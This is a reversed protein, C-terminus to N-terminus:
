VIRPVPNHLHGLLMGLRRIAPRDRLAGDESTSAVRIEERAEQVLPLMDGWVEDHYRSLIDVWPWIDQSQLAAEEDSSRLVNGDFSRNFDPILDLPNSAAEAPAAKCDHLPHDKNNFANNTSDDEHPLCHWSDAPDDDISFTPDSLLAVVEAGDRNHDEYAQSLPSKVEAAQNMRALAQYINGGTRSSARKRSSGKIGQNGQVLLYIPEEDTREPVTYQKENLCTVDERTAQTNHLQRPKTTFDDFAAQALIAEDACHAQGSRFSESSKGVTDPDGQLRSAQMPASAEGHNEFSSSSPDKSAESSLSTLSSSADSASSSGFACQVLGSASTGIRQTLSPISETGKSAPQDRSPVADKLKPNQSM